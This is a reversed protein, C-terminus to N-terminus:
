NEQLLTVLHLHFYEEENISFSTPAIKKLENWIKNAEKYRSNNQIEYLIETDVPNIVEGTEQRTTAMALHIILADAEEEQTIIETNKLHRLTKIAYDYAEQNITDTDLLINLKEQIM